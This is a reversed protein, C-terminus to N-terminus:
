RSTELYAIRQQHRAEALTHRSVDAAFTQHVTLGGAAAPTPATVQGGDHFKPVSVLASQLLGVQARSLVVEGTQLIAPVEDSALRGFGIGDGGVTGGGHFRKVGSGTILGGDHVAPVGGRNVTQNYTTAYIDTNVRGPISQLSRIIRAITSSANDTANITSYAEVAAWKDAMGMAELLKQTAPRDDTDTTSTAVLRDWEDALDHAELFARITDDIDAQVSSITVYEDWEHGLGKAELFAEVTGDNNADYTSVAILTDLEDALGHAEAFELLAPDIDADVTVTPHGIADFVEAVVDPVVGIAEAVSDVTAEAGQRVVEELVEMQVRMKAATLHLSINDAMAADLAALEEATANVADAVIPAWEPGMLALRAAVDGGAREAVAAIDGQWDRFEQNVDELHKTIQGVTVPFDDAFDEWSKKQSELAERQESEGEKLKKIQSDIAENHAEAAAEAAARNEESARDMAQSVDLFKAAVEAWQKELDEVAAAAEAAAPDVEGLSDVFEDTGAAANVAGDGADGYADHLNFMQRTLGGDIAHEVDYFTGAVEANMRALARGEETTTDVVGALDALINRLAAAAMGKDRAARSADDTVHAYENSEASAADLAANVERLADAEGRIAKVFTDTSIGLLQMRRHADRDRLDKTIWADSAATLAATEQDLTAAFERSREVAKAKERMWFGLAVTAAGIAWTWPNLAMLGLRTGVNLKTLADATQVIRPALLLFAGAATAAFGTVGAGLTIVKQLPDPLDLLMQGVATGTDYFGRMAPQLHEGFAIRVAEGTASFRAAAAETTKSWEEFGESLLGTTDTMREFIASTESANAGTLDLVGALARVNPFIRAMAEDNDGVADKVQMLAAFLGEEQITQRLGEASLGFEALQDSSQKAPKLLSVLIARLQTSATAANTGTRTMAAMAGGVQDFSVGMQSAIPLVQGMSGALESAEAKGERVSGILVDTANSASLTESGYANVASTVLDAITSTDGLGISAAKASAELVAMADSGRLGASQVFFLAEGLEQPGRGTASLGLAAKGMKDMEDASVGILTTSKTLTSEFQAAEKGAKRLGLSIAAGAAGIAIGAQTWEAQNDRASRGIQRASRTVDSGVQRTTQSARRMAQEYQATVAQLRVSITRDSM